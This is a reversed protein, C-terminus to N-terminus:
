GAGGAGAGAHGGGDDTEGVWVGALGGRLVWFVGVGFVGDVGGGGFEFLGVAGGVEGWGFVGGRGEPLFEAVEECPLALIECGRVVTM